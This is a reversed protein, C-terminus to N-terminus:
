TLVTRFLAPLVQDYGAGSVQGGARGSRGRIRSDEITMWGQAFMGELVDGGDEAHSGFSEPTGTWGRPHVYPIVASREPRISDM